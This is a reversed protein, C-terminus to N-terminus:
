TSPLLYSTVLKFMNAFTDSASPDIGPVASLEYYLAALKKRTEMPMKFKLNLWRKIQRSASRAGGEFDGAKVFIYLDTILENLHALRVNDDEAAYPLHHWYDFGEKAPEQEGMAATNDSQVETLPPRATDPIAVPPKPSMTVAPFAASSAAPPEVAVEDRKERM